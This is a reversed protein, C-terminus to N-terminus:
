AIGDEINVIVGPSASGTVSCGLRNRVREYYRDLCLVHGVEVVLNGKSVACLEFLQPWDNSNRYSSGTALPQTDLESIPKPFHADAWITLIFAGPSGVVISARGRM